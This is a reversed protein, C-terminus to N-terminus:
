ATGNLTTACTTRIMRKLILTEFWRYNFTKTFQSRFTLNDFTKKLKSTYLEFKENLFDIGCCPLIMEVCEEMDMINDGNNDYMWYLVNRTKPIILKSIYTHGERAGICRMTNTNGYKNVRYILQPLKNNSSIGAINKKFIEVQNTGHLFYPTRPILESHSLCEQGTEDAMWMGWEKFRIIKKELGVVWNNQLVFPAPVFERYLPDKFWLGSATIAQPFYRYRIGPIPKLLNLIAFM